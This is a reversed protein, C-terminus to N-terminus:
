RSVLAVFGLYNTGEHEEAEKEDMAEHLVLPARPKDATCIRVRKTRIAKLMESLNAASVRIVHGRLAEDVEGEVEAETLGAMGESSITNTVTLHDDHFAIEVQGLRGAGVGTVASSFEEVPIVAGDTYGKAKDLVKSIDRTEGALTRLIFSHRSGLAGYHDRSRVLTVTSDMMGLNSVFASPSTIFQVPESAMCEVSASALRYSDTAHMTISGETVIVKVGKLVEAAEQSPRAAAHSAAKFCWHIDNLDAEAVEVLDGEPAWWGSIMPVVPSASKSRGIRTIVNNKEVSLEVTQASKNTKTQEQIRATSFRAEGAECSQTPLITRKWETETASEIILNDNEVRAYLLRLSSGSSHWRLTSEFDKRDLVARM